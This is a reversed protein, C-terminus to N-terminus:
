QYKRVGIFTGALYTLSMLVALHPIQAEFSILGTDSLASYAFGLVLGTGLSLGMAALQIKQELEDLGNLMTKNAWIMVFGIVINVMVMLGTVVSQQQWVYRHGFYVAALSVLWLLTWLALRNRNVRNQERWPTKNTIKM